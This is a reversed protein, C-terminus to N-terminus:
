HTNKSCHAHCGSPSARWFSPCRLRRIYYCFADMQENATRLLYEKKGFFNIFMSFLHSLLFSGATWLIPGGEKLGQMVPRAGFMETLFVGHVYTFMGFHFVFFVSMFLNSGLSNKGGQKTKRCALIKPINLFGIIVSELWYLVLISLADWGWYLVGIIPVVNALILFIASPTLKFPM